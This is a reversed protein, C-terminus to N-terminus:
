QPNGNRHDANFENDEPFPSDWQTQQTVKNEYYTKMSTSDYHIIWNDRDANNDVVVDHKKLNENEWSVEGTINNYYYTRDQDTDYM